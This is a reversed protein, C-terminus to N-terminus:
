FLIESKGLSGGNELVTALIQAMILKIVERLPASALAGALARSPTIDCGKNKALVVIADQRHNRSPHRPGAESRPTKSKATLSNCEGACRPASRVTDAIIFLCLYFGLLGIRRRYFCALRTHRGYRRRQAEGRLAHSLSVSPLYSGDSRLSPATLLM